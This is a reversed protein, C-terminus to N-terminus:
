MYERYPTKEEFREFYLHDGDEAGLADLEKWIGLKKFVDWLRDKADRVDFNTMIAIQNIRKGHIKFKRGKPNKPKKKPIIEHIEYYRPDEEKEPTYEKYEREQKIYPRRAKEEEAMIYCAEVVPQLGRNGAASICFIKGSFDTEKLFEEIVFAEFELDEIDCKNFVIIQDKKDLDRQALRLENQIINYSEVMNSDVEIVHLLVSNRSIHRLFEDGLGKGESAGAILGPIDAFVLSSDFVRAVGLNPILTTFHYNAIKPKADTIAAIFTSKGVNPLGIIGVDAVLQLELEVEISEGPEGLEAFRPAQRISSVFHANGYGGRGGHLVCFEQKHDIFDVIIEGTELNRILTGVPVELILDEGDGGHKNLGSGSEGSEAHFQKRTHLDILSNKHMNARFIVSGGKGGDGGNPGGKPMYKQRLFCMSGGGGTGSNLILQTTDCFM